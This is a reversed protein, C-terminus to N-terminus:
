NDLKQEQDIKHQKELLKQAKLHTYERTQSTKSHGSMFQTEFINYGQELWRTIREHRMGHLTRSTPIDAKKIYKNFAKSARAGTVPYGKRPGGNYVFLYDDAGVEGRISLYEDILQKCYSPVPISREKRGKTPPLYILQLMSDDFQLNRGQLGSYPLTSKYAAEHKRLGCFFYIGILPKFWHQAQNKDYEPLQLKRELDKDFANFLEKLEKARLMKPRTNSKKDPLDKKIAAFYNHEVVDWDLLKNWFVRLQKFYFHRTAPKINPKFIVKEFHHQRVMLPPLDAIDNLSIFHEIAQEYAGSNHITRNEANHVTSNSLHSKRNYFYDAAERLTNIQIQKDNRNYEKLIAQPEFEKHYPDIVNRDELKELTELAKEAERKNSLGLSKVRETTEGEVMRSFKIYYNSGRKKLSAM